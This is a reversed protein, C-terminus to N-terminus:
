VWRFVLWGVLACAILAIALFVVVDFVMPPNPFLRVWAVRLVGLTFLHTLYLSYSADGVLRLVDSRWARCQPHLAAIVVLCAGALQTFTGFPPQDRLVLLATGALLMPLVLPGGGLSLRGSSWLTGIWVGALFELLMPHTYTQAAASDFPGLVVGTGVLVVLVITLAM